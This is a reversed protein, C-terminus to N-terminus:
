FNNISVISFNLNLLMLNFGCFLTNCLNMSFQIFCSTFVSTLIILVFAVKFFSCEANGRSENSSNNVVTEKTNDKNVKPESSYQVKIGNPSISIQMNDDSYNYQEGKQLANFMETLMKESFVNFM